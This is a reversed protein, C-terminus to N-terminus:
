KKEQNNTTSVKLLSAGQESLMTLAELSAQSDVGAILDLLIEVEFGAELADLATAKVCHDTAIGTVSVSSVQHRKLYSALTEQPNADGALLESAFGEFGSYAAEYAGKDFIANIESGVKLNEKLMPHLEAGKTGAECHVPWSVKFDPQGKAFHEGPDVHFDRTAVVLDYGGAQVLELVGKAVANGGNVALSGGECFDNQVDVIILAKKM